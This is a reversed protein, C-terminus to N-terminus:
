EYKQSEIDNVRTSQVKSTMQEYKPSEIDNVRVKPQM